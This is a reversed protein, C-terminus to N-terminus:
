FCRISTPVVFRGLFVLGLMLVVLAFCSVVLLSGVDVLGGEVGALIELLIAVEFPFVHLRLGCSCFRFLSVCPSGRGKVLWSPVVLM